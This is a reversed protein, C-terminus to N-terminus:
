KLMLVSAQQVSVNAVYANGSIRESTVTGRPTGADFSMAALAQTSHALSFARDGADGQLVIAPHQKKAPLDSALWSSAADYMQSKDGVLTVDSGVLDFYGTTQVQYLRHRGFDGLP